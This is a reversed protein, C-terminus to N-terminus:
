SRPVGYNNISYCSYYSKFHYEIRINLAESLQKWLAMNRSDLYTESDIINIQGM